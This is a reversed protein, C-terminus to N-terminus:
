GAKGAQADSVQAVCEDRMRCFEEAANGRYRWPLFAGAHGDVRRFQELAEDWREQLYLYYALLHRVEPLRPHDPDAAAVDALVADVTAYMEPTRDVDASDSDDHEFHAILPFVSMLTGAPAEAAARVAFARALAESGRWKACWYQLASFHAEYHYPARSTLEKWIRRLEEHPLGLGIATWIAGVYPAPDGEPALAAARTHEERSRLLTRRFGEFQEQTTYQAGKAGRVKWALVVTSRARLLAAAPDDPRASEWSLLWTDDDAAVDALQECFHTRLEWDREAATADLLDAAPQWDGARAAAMAVTLAPQLPAPLETNQREPPLLGLAAVRAATEEAAVEDETGSRLGEITGQVIAKLFYLGLALVGLVLPTLVVWLIIVM